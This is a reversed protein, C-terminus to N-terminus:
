VGWEEAKKPTINGGCSKVAEVFAKQWGVNRMGGAGEPATPHNRNKLKGAVCLNFSSPKKARGLILVKAVRLGMKTKRGTLKIRAM